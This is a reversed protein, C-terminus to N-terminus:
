LGEKVPGREPALNAVSSMKMGKTFRSHVAGAAARGHFRSTIVVVEAASMAATKMEGFFGAIAHRNDAFRDSRGARKAFQGQNRSQNFVFRDAVTVVAAAKQRFGISEAYDDALAPGQVPGLSFLM